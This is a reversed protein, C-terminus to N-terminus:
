NEIMIDQWMLVYRWSMTAYFISCYQLDLPVFFFSCTWVRSMLDCWLWRMQFGGAQWPLATGGAPRFQGPEARQWLLVARVTSANSLGPVMRQWFTCQWTVYQHSVNKASPSSPSSPSPPELSKWWPLHGYSQNLSTALDKFRLNQSWNEHIIQIGRETVQDILIMKETVMRLQYLCIYLNYLCISKHVKGTWLGFTWRNANTKIRAKFRLSAAICRTVAGRSPGAPFGTWLTGTALLTKDFSAERDFFYVFNLSLFKFHVYIIFWSLCICCVAWLHMWRSVTVLRKSTSPHQSVLPAISCPEM